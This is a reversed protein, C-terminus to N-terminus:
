VSQNFIIGEIEEMKDMLNFMEKLPIKRIIEGTEKDRVIIINTKNENDYQFEIKTNFLRVRKNAEQALKKAGEESLGKNAPTEREETKKANEGNGSTITKAPAVRQVEQVRPSEVSVPTIIEEM